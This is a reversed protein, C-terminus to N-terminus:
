RLSSQGSALLLGPNHVALITATGVIRSGEAVRLVRGIWLTNPYSEPSLFWVNAKASQGTSVSDCCLFEHHTSTWYSPHVDYIPRYGSSVQKTKGERTLSTLELLVEADAPRSPSTMSDLAKLLSTYHIQPRALATPRSWFYAGRPSAFRMGGEAFGLLAGGFM